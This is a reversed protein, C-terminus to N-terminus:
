KLIGANAQPIYQSVVTGDEYVIYIYKGNDNYTLYTSVANDIVSQQKSKDVPKLPSEAIEYVEKLLNMFNTETTIYDMLYRFRSYSFNYNEFFIIKSTDFYQNGIGDFRSEVVDSYKASADDYSLDSYLVEKIKGDYKYEFDIKNEKFYNVTNTMQPYIPISVYANRIVFEPMNEGTYIEGYANTEYEVGYEYNYTFKDSYEVSPKLTDNTNFCREGLQGLVAISKNPNKFFDDFTMKTYDEYLARALDDGKFIQVANEDDEEKDLNPAKVVMSNDLYNFLGVESSDFKEVYYMDAYVFEDYDHLSYKGNTSINKENFGLLQEEVVADFYPSNYVKKLYNMFIEASFVDFERYKTEGNKDEIAFYIYGEATNNEKTKKDVKIQEFLELIMNIDDADTSKVYRNNNPHVSNYFLDLHELSIAVSKVDEKAPAKNFTGLYETGVAVFAVALVCFAVAYIPLAKVFAKIKRAMILQTFFFGILALGVTVLFLGFVEYKLDYGFAGVAFYSAFVMVFVSVVARSVAFHGFSNAHEAKRRNFLLLAVSILVVAVLGWALVPIIFYKDVLMKEPIEGKVLVSKQITGLMDGIRFFSPDGTYQEATDVFTFPILATSWTTGYASGIFGRLVSYKLQEFVSYLMFPTFSLAAGTLGAEFVNGSVMMAFSAIAYGVMGSVFLGAVFYLFVSTLYASAGFKAINILYVIFVPIFTSAFLTIIASLTRNIFMTNRTVGLSLFVNVQKKSVLFFYSKVAVLAGCCVMGMFMLEPSYAFTSGPGLFMQLEPHIPTKIFDETNVYSIVPVTVMFFLVLFAIIPFLLSSTLSRKFDNLNVNNKLSKQSTM